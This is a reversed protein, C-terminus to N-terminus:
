RQVPQAHRLLYAYPDYVIMGGETSTLLEADDCVMDCSGLCIWGALLTRSHFVV